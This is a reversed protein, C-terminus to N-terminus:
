AVHTEIVMDLDAVITVPRVKRAFDLTEGM